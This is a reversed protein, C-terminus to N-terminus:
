KLLVPSVYEISPLTYRSMGNTINGIMVVHLGFTSKRHRKMESYFYVTTAPPATGHYYLPTDEFMEMKSVSFLTEFVPKLWQLPELFEFARAFEHFVITNDYIEFHENM